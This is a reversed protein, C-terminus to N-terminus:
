AAAHEHQDPAASKRACAREWAVLESVKWFRHKGFYVPKPFGSGDNLRRHLWMDSVGYRTQVHAARLFTEDSEVSNSM